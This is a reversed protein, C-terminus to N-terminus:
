IGLMEFRSGVVPDKEVEIRIPFAEKLQDMHTIVIIKEFDDRISNIAEVLSQVGQEDQTGFGEDIVLTRIRVGNREALIRALAIRLAFNVRFAEGGSFTEYPRRTGLEDRIVINLTEKTGGDKKDKLTELRVEMRGDTLKDLLENATEEIDPLTEEIILSPIGNKGFAARLHRYLQQDSSVLAMEERHNELEARDREAQQLRATLDGILRQFSALAEDAAKCAERKEAYRAELNKRDALSAHLRDRRAEMQVRERCVAIRDEQIKKVRLAWEERNSHAHTLDKMREGAGGLVKLERRVKEFREADFGVEQLQGRLTAIAEMFPAFPTGESLQRALDAHQETLRNEQRDYEDKRSRVEELRRLIEEFRVIQESESRLRNYEAEDLPMAALQEMLNRREQREELGYQEQDLMSKFEAAQKDKDALEAMQKYRQAIREDIRALNVPAEKLRELAKQLENYTARLRSRTAELGAIDKEQGDIEELLLTLEEQFRADVQRRRETSLNSRCTPCVGSDASKFRNYDDLRKEQEAKRAKVLGLHREIEEKVAQGESRTTELRERAREYEDAAHKLREREQELAEASRQEKREEIERRLRQYQGNISEKLGTLRTEIERKREELALRKDHVAQLEQFRVRAARAKALGRQAEPAELLQQLAQDKFKRVSKLDVSLTHLRKDQTSKAERLENEKQTIRIELGRHLERKVDLDDREKLLREYREYERIIEDRRGLLAGAETIRKELGGSEEDLAGIQEDIKMISAVVSEVEREAADLDNLKRVIQQEEQRLAELRKQEETAQSRAGALAENWESEHELARILRSCESEIRAIQDSATRERDRALGSLVEFRELNLIRALIDKRDSPKKKTFEDSRGQLLMASNIFTDYDIGLILNIKEQTERMSAATLARYTSTSPELVGFELQPQNTKGSKTLAFTRTVRYREGEVDFVLEVQMRHTGNRILEADPKRSESSKRAEGWLAWTMADLLASKGQGNRGSLCAVHFQRFDLAPAATGYSLFNSLKLEVPIMPRTRVVHVAAFSFAQPATYYDPARHLSDVSLSAQMTLLFFRGAILM